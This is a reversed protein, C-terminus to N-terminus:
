NIYGTNFMQQTICDLMAVYAPDIQVSNYYPSSVTDHQALQGIAHYERLLRNKNSNYPDLKTIRWIDQMQEPTYALEGKLGYIWSNLNGNYGNCAKGPGPNSMGPGQNIQIPIM